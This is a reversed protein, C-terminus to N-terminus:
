DRVSDVKARSKCVFEFPFAWPVARGNFHCCYFNPPSILKFVRCYITKKFIVKNSTLLSYVCIQFSCVLILVVVVHKPTFYLSILICDITKMTNFTSTLRLGTYVDLDDLPKRRNM